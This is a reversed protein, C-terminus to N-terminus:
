RVYMGIVREIAASCVPDFEILSLTFMRCDLAPRYMGKSVYGAGEFAGVVGAYKSKRLIETQRKQIPDRKQYYDPALRDLKGRVVDLSDYEAKEWPTPVPTGEALLDKWKLTEKTNKATVNPEWPEVGKPYFDIYSIQSSYYEDGLGGFSHGFEHVYVYDMQWEQGPQDVKTYTTTYLNFIGGGGYRDDNVLITIYDYTVTGAIDRIAKNEETLVYRASGFTNYMTGLATKKWVNKDPKDIGSDDSIVEIARVNFHKKHKTFPPTNFLVNAFHRADKRFKEMDAAAYGDGLILLDVKQEPAGNSMIDFTAFTQKRKERNVQTPDNPDIVTTFFDRFTMKEGAAVFRDRRAITVKVPSKPMPFRVSEHFTRWVGNLAEETTQWENFITSYGRSYIMTNTALDTVTVFYDGLNLEDLLVTRSGAWPGDEYVKDLAIQEQGKVGFHHYDVRMTTPSFYRDFSQGFATAALAILLFLTRM